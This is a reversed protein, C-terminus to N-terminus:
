LRVLKYNRSGMGLEEAYQLQRKGDTNPRMGSFKDEGPPHHTSLFSEAYGQQQNVLDCAAADIAVPDTSALIGIDPVISADSWPTCDCDPTIRTLFSLYGVKGEKGQVAGYAYEILRETFLPIETEWDIDIAHSPCVTMCEFCGICLNPDFTSKKKVLTIASKPCVAVCKGCGICLARIPFPKAQHQARKGAPPACGMALNKLAGGFGAVEHGKFHTMVIMSDAAVIDGAITVTKFHKKKITVRAVNKGCLGDAIIVPAGIVAYDFGHLVATTIHDVANSRSGLYLTNTDTVFPLAGAEKVKEVVQRVFVPSIYADSGREGFHLKIATRDRKHICSSFGAADFLRRIKAETNEDNSRARLSAFWVTSKM